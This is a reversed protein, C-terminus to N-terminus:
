GLTDLEMQVVAISMCDDWMRNDGLEDAKSFFAIKEFIRVFQGQAMSLHWKESPIHDEFSTVQLTMVFHNLTHKLRHKM